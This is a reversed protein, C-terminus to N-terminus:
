NDHLGVGNNVPIQMCRQDCVELIRELSIEPVCKWVKELSKKCAEEDWRRGEMKKKEIELISTFQLM